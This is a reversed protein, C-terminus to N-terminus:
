DYRSLLSGKVKIFKGKRINNLKELYEKRVETKEEIQTRM